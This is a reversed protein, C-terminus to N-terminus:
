KMRHEDRKMRHEIGHKIKSSPGCIDRFEKSLGSFM